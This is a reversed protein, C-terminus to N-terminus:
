GTSVLLLPDHRSIGSAAVVAAVRSEPVGAVVIHDVDLFPSHVILWATGAVVILSLLVLVVRLRRRGQERAVAIRRARIRPDVRPPRPTVVTGTAPEADLTDGDLTDDALVEIEDGDLADLVEIDDSEVLDAEERVDVEDDPPQM